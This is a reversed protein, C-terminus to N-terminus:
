LTTSPSILVLEGLVQVASLFFLLISNTYLSLHVHFFPMLKLWVQLTSSNSARKSHWIIKEFNKTCFCQWTAGWPWALWFVSHPSCPSSYTVSIDSILLWSISQDYSKLMAISCKKHHCRLSISLSAFMSSSTCSFVHFCHSSFFFYSFLIPQRNGAISYAVCMASPLKIIYEVLPLYLKYAMSLKDDWEAFKFVLM